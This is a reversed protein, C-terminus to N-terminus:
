VAKQINTEDSFSTLIVVTKALNEHKIIKTAAVGDMNPMAIDILLLEPLIEKCKTIAEMGNSAEAKIVYKSNELCKKITERISRDDDAIVVTIRSNDKNSM